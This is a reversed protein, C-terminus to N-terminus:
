KKVLKLVSAKAALECRRNRRIVSAHLSVVALRREPNLPSLNKPLEFPKLCLFLKATGIRQVRDRDLTVHDFQNMYNLVALEVNMELLLHIM